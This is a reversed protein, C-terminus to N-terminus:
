DLYDLTPAIVIVIIHREAIENGHLASVNTLEYLIVIMRFTVSVSKHSDM